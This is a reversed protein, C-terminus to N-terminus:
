KASKSPKWVSDVNIGFSKANGQGDCCTGRWVNGEATETYWEELTITERQCGQQVARDRVWAALDSANWISSCGFVFLAVITSVAMLKSAALRAYRDVPLRSNM